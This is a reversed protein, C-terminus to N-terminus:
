PDLTARGRDGEETKEEAKEEGKERRLRRQSGRRHLARVHV